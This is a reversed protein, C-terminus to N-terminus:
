MCGSLMAADAVSVYVVAALMCIIALGYSEIFKKVMTM